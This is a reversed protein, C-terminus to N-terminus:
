KSEGAAKKLNRGRNKASREQRAYFCPAFDSEKYQANRNVTCDPHKKLKNETIISSVLATGCKFIKALQQRTRYGDRKISGVKKAKAAVHQALKLRPASHQVPEDKFFKFNIRGDSTPTMLFELIGCTIEIVM